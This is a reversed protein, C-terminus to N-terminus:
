SSSLLDHKNIFNKFEDLPTRHGHDEITITANLEELKKATNRPNVVEDNRGLLAWIEPKFEGNKPYSYDKTRKVLAPNLLVLKTSIHTGIRFAFYGGLSSGVILDPSLSKTFKLAIEFSNEHEYNMPHSVVIHGIEAMWNAKSSPLSSELGHFYLIKM